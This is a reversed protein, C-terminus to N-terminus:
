SRTASSRCPTRCTTPSIPSLAAVGPEDHSVAGNGARMAVDLGATYREYSTDRDLRVEEIEIDPWGWTDAQAPLYPSSVDWIFRDQDNM